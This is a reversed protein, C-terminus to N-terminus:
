PLRELPLSIDIRLGEPGSHLWFSGDLAGIRDRLNRPGIDLAFCQQTNFSGHRDLGKGDDNIQIDLKNDKSSVIVDLKTAGGHRVANAAAERIIQQFQFSIGESLRLGHPSCSLVIPIGWREEISEIIQTLSSSEGSDTEIIDRADENRLREVVRRLERQEKQLWEQLAALRLRGESPSRRIVELHMAAASLTQLVGDHLDRAIRLREEFTAARRLADIEAMRGLGSEIQLAAFNATMMEDLSFDPRDLILLRGTFRDTQIPVSLLHNTSAYECIRRFSESTPTRCVSGEHPLLLVDLDTATGFMINESADPAFIDLDSPLLRKQGVSGNEYTVWLAWPEDRDQVVVAIRLTAFVEAVYRACSALYDPLQVPNSMEPAWRGLRLIEGEARQQHFAFYTLMAGIVIVHACRILFRDIELQALPFLKLQLVGSIILLVLVAVSTWLAGKWGWRFTASVISFTFVPFFPSTLGATAYLLFAFLGIELVHVGIDLSQAPLGLHTPSLTTRRQAYFLLAAVGAYLSLLTYTIRPMEAPQSPDIWVAGLVFLSIALRGSAIVRESRSRLLQDITSSAQPRGNVTVSM